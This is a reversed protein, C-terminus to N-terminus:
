GSVRRRGGGRRGRGPGCPRAGGRSVTGAKGGAGLPQDSARVPARARPVVPQAALERADHPLFSLAAGLRHGRPGAPERHGPRSTLVAPPATRRQRTGSDNLQASLAVPARSPARCSSLKAATARTQSAHPRVTTLPSSTRTNNERRNRTRRQRRKVQPAGRRPDPRCSSVRPDGVPNSWRGHSSCDPGTQMDGVYTTPGMAHLLTGRSTDATSCPTTSIRCSFYWTSM